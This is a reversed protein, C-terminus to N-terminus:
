STRKITFCFNPSLGQINSSLAFPKLIMVKLIKSKCFFFKVPLPSNRGQESRIFVSLGSDFSNLKTKLKAAALKM